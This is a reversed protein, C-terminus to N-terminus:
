PEEPFLAEVAALQAPTITASAVLTGLLLKVAAAPAYLFDSWGKIMVDENKSPVGSPPFAYVVTGDASITSDVTPTGTHDWAFLPQTAPIAASINVSGTFTAGALQAYTLDSWGKVVVDAADIPVGDFAFNYVPVGDAQISGLSATPTGLQNFTFMPDAPDPTAEIALTGGIATDGAVSLDVEGAVASTLTVVGDFTTDGAVTGGASKSLVDNTIVTKVLRIHNDGESKPDTGLPWADNLDAITDGTELGM